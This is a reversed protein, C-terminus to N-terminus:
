SIQNCVYTQKQQTVFLNDSDKLRFNSTQVFDSLSTHGFDVIRLRSVSTELGCDLTQYMYLTQRFRFNSTRRRDSFSDSNHGSTQLVVYTQKFGPTWFRFDSSLLIDSIRTPFWLRFDIVWFEFDSTSLRDSTQEFDSNRFRGIHSANHGFDTRLRVKSSRIRFDLIAM